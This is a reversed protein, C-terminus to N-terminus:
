PCVQVAFQGVTGSGGLIVMWEDKQPAKKNEKPLELGAGALLCLGATQTITTM